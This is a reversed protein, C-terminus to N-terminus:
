NPVIRYITGTGISIAYLYGDPGVKLDTLRSFGEGFIVAESEGDTDAIKDSLAGGLVLSTRQPNLDFNYIRGHNVDAVFIDNEYQSGLENSDLFTIATPAVTDTWVFEPDRYHGTGGFSVLNGFDFDNPAIGMLDRWGSNFGPEVLNIEDNTGPGNETDWMKGTIPDFDLGFSNRIGYGFYKNLPHTNGIIGNGVTLGEQTVRLIGGSGDAEPGNEFNQARTQRNLDGIVAYVNKDPGIMITGGNHNPGPTVPLDLLLKPSFMKGMAPGLRADDVFSYKYLRNAIAAGGDASQSETYYLFVNFLRASPPLIPTIVQMVDIGLMGRESNSAVNVDLLPQPLIIGNKVRQVTGTNKELVLMDDVGIFAASTPSNLGSTVTQVILNPDKLTPVAHVTNVINMTTVSTVTIPTIASTSMSIVFHSLFLLIVTVLALTVIGLFAPMQLYTTPIKRGIDM